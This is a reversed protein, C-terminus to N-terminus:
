TTTHVRASAEKLERAGARVRGGGRVEKNLDEVAAQIREASDGAAADKVAQVRAEVRAKADAPLQPHPTLPFPPGSITRSATLDASFAIALCRATLPGGAAGGAHRALSAPTLYYPCGRGSVCPVRLVSRSRMPPSGGQGGGQVKDGLERLQKEAQYTGAEAANRADVLERRRKDEAACRGAESV